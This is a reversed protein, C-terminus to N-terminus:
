CEKGVRREESRLGPFQHDPNIIVSSSSSVPTPGISSSSETVPPVSSSTASPIVIQSSSSKPTNRSSSSRAIPTRKSSSSSSQVLSIGCAPCLDPNNQLVPFVPQVEKESMTGDDVTPKLIDGNGCAWFSAAIGCAILGAFIKKNM